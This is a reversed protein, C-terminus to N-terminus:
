PQVEVRMRDACRRAARAGELNGAAEYERAVADCRAAADEAVLVPNTESVAMAILRGLLTNISWGTEESAKQLVVFLDEPLRISFQHVKKSHSAKVCYLLLSDRM